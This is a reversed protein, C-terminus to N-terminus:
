NLEISTTITDLSHIITKDRKVYREVTFVTTDIFLHPSYEVNEAVTNFCKKCKTTIALTNDIAEQMYRLDKRFLIDVNVNLETIKSTRSSGCLCVFTKQCSPM